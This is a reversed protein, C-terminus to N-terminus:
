CIGTVSATSFSNSHMSHRVCCLYRLNMSRVNWRWLLHAPFQAPGRGSPCDSRLSTRPLWTHARVSAEISLPFIVLTHALLFQTISHIELHLVFALLLYYSQFLTIVTVFNFFLYIRLDNHNWIKKLFVGLSFAICNNFGIFSPWFSIIYGIILWAIRRKKLPNQTHMVWLLSVTWLHAAAWNASTPRRQACRRWLLLSWLTPRASLGSFTCLSMICVHKHLNAVSVQSFLLTQYNRVDNLWSQYM